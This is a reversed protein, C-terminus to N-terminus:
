IRYTHIVFKGICMRPGSGFPVFSGPPRKAEQDPDFNHPNWSEPNPYLTRDLHVLFYMPIINSGAPITVHDINMFVTHFIDQRM